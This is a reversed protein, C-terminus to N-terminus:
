VQQRPGRCHRQIVRPLGRRLCKTKAIASRIASRLQRDTFPKSLFGAAGRQLGRRCALRGVSASIFLIPLRLGMAALRSQVELGDLGAMHLDLVLCDPLRADVQSLFERGSAFPAVEMGLSRVLRALAKRVSDDDEVLAILPSAKM